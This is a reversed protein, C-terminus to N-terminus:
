ANGLSSEIEELTEQASQLEPHRLHTFIEVARRSLSLAEHLPSGERDSLASEQVPRTAGVSALNQKLLAKALRDCDSAILEQRGVKEALALAERALSEAEAWQERDLALAALNGRTEAFLEQHGVKKAIRLSERYDHEAVPYDKNEREADALDNLTIAVENSEPSISRYIELAKRYANIAASYDKNQKHGLGRLQIAIAKKRPTGDQWHEAVRSACALAKIPQNRLLYIRGAYHARGGANEKDNSALAREEGQEHLWLNDDWRGTFNLFEFLQECVTQLRNINNGTLLRPLAASIFDWEADLMPFKEYDKSTGGYQLALAYARNTLADGTQTM